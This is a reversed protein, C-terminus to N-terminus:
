SVARMAAGNNESGQLFYKDPAPPPGHSGIVKCYNNTLRELHKQRFLAHIRKELRAAEYKKKFDDM